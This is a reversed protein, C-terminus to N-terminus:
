KEKEEVEYKLFKISIIDLLFSFKLGLESLTINNLSHDGYKIYKVGVQNMEKASDLLIWDNLYAEAWFHNWFAGDEFVVGYVLRAPIGASRLLAVSLVALESCDGQGNKLTAFASGFRVSLNKGKINEFVWKRVAEILGAEGPCKKKIELSARRILRTELNLFSNNELYKSLSGTKDSWNSVGSGPSNVVKIIIRDAGKDIIQQRDDESIDHIKGRFVIQYHVSAIQNFPVGPYSSVKISSLSRIDPSNSPNPASIAGALGSDVFKVKKYHLTPSRQEILEGKGNRKEFVLLGGGIQHRAEITFLGNMHGTVRNSVMIIKKFQPSYYSYTFESKKGLCKRIFKELGYNFFFNQELPIDRIHVGEPSVEKLKLFGTEVEGEVTYTYNEKKLKYDFSVPNGDLGETLTTEKEEKLLYNGRSISLRSTIGTTVFNGTRQVVDLEHGIEM